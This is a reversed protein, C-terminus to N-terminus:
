LTDGLARIIDDLAKELIKNIGPEAQALGLEFMHAGKTGKYKIRRAIAFAVGPVDADPVGLVRKVWLELSPVASFTGDLNRVMPAKGPARGYEVAAGYPLPTSITVQVADGRM